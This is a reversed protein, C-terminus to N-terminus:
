AGPAVALRALAWLEAFFGLIQAGGRLNGYYDFADFARQISPADNGLERLSLMQPAAFFTFILGAMLLLSAAGMPFVAGSTSPAKWLGITAVWTLLAAGIALLPYIVLGHGLDAHRSFNAWALASTARWAPMEIFMRVFNGGALLGSLAAAAVLLRVSLRQM